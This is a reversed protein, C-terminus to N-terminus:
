KDLLITETILSAYPKRRINLEAEMKTSAFTIMSYEKNNENSIYKVAWKKLMSTCM